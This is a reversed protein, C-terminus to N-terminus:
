QSNHIYENFTSVNVTISDALLYKKSAWTKPIWLVFKPIRIYLIRISYYDLWVFIIIDFFLTFFWYILQLAIRPINYNWYNMPMSAFTVIFDIFCAIIGWLFAFETIDMWNNWCNNCQAVFKQISAFLRVWKQDMASHSLSFIM